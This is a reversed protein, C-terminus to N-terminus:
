IEHEKGGDQVYVHIKTLDITEDDRIMEKVSQAHIVGSIPNKVSELSSRIDCNIDQCYEFILDSDEIRCNEMRINKMYCFGQHSSILCDKMFINKSNWGFYEGKITCNELYVNECNWFADKTNLVSNVVHLNKGGDFAYNGDLRLNDVHVDKSDKLLYDGKATVDKLTVNECSWLTESADHFLIDELYINKCRRFEKPAIIDCHLFRSDDTYWIGSRSMLLFKSNRVEHNKGYWLPYKYGFTVQDLVLNRAEKLPSEGDDFLCNEIRADRLRFLAREGTYHGDKYEKMIM